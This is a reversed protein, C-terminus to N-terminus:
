RDGEKIPHEAIWKRYEEEWYATDGFEEAWLGAAMATMADAVTANEPFRRYGEEYESDLREIDARRLREKCAERIVEARTKGEAQSLRDLQERLEDGMPVQVIKPAM